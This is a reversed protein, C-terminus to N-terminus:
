QSPRKGSLTRRGEILISSLILAGGIVSRIGPVEGLFLFGLFIGYIPQISGLLSATSVSFHKFTSLFLTHGIATTVLGLVLLVLWDRGAPISPYLYLVPLLIAVTFILQYLMIVSGEVKTVQTKLLINRLSYVLASLIGMALGATKDNSLDFSPALFYIGLLVLAALMLHVREFPKRLLLPELLTTIAPYTYISLMGIAVSSWALAYFYTVWHTAM